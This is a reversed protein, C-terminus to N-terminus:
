PKGRVNIRSLDLRIVNPTSCAAVQEDTLAPMVGSRAADALKAWEAEDAARKQAAVIEAAANKQNTEAIQREWEAREHRVGAAYRREGHAVGWIFSVVLTALLGYVILKDIM